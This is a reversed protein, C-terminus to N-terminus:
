REFSERSCKVVARAREADEESWAGIDIPQEHRVLREILEGFTEDPRKLRELMRKTDDSVRISTSMHMRVAYLRLLNEPARRTWHVSM